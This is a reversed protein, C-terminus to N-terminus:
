SIGQTRFYSCVLSLLLHCLGCHYLFLDYVFQKM